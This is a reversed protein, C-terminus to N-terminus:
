SITMIRLRHLAGHWDDDAPPDGWWRYGDPDIYQYANPAALAHFLVSALREAGRPPTGSAPDTDLRLRAALRRRGLRYRVFLALDAGVWAEVISPGPSSGSRRHVGRAVAIAWDGTVCGRYDVM